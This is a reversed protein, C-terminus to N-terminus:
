DYLIPKLFPRENHIDKKMKYLTLNVTALKECV